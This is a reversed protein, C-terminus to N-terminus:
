NGRVFRRKKQAKKRKSVHHKKFKYSTGNFRMDQRTHSPLCKRVNQCTSKSEETNRATEPDDPLHDLQLLSTVLHCRSQCGCVGWVCLHLGYYMCVHECMGCTWSTVRIAASPIMECREFWYKCSLFFTYGHCSILSEAIATLVQFVLLTSHPSFFLRERTSICVCHQPSFLDLSASLVPM